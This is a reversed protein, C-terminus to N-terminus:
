IEAEAGGSPVAAGVSGLDTRRRGGVTTVAAVSVGVSKDM